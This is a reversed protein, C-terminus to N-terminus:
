ITQSRSVYDFLVTHNPCLSSLEDRIFAEVVTAASPPYLVHINPGADITFTIPVKKNERFKRIREIAILSEPALLTYGPRSSMMLGHLSLAEEECITAFAEFDGSTLTDLLRNTNANAQSIRGARYPHQDMLQHGASSSVKKKGNEIILIADRIDQFIPHVTENISVAYNDSGMELASTKGWLCWGQSFSRAASGSGLRAISSLTTSDTYIGSPTIQNQIDCFCKALAAMSSASSAIGSSHPFTNSSNITLHGKQLFPLFPKAHEIFVKLKPEFDERRNTEFYFEIELAQDLPQFEVSTTTIANNLTFSISPNVPEQIGKKGWYKVIAINSPATQQSYYQRSQISSTTM